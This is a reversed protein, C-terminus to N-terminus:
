KSEPLIRGWDAFHESWYSDEIDTIIVGTEPGDSAAHIFIRKNKFKGEGQYLGLYIGVHSIAGSSTTRFFMLDGPERDKEEIKEVAKYMGKSNSPIRKGAGFNAVYSVYGSCDFGTKPTKGAYKYPTGKLSIALDIFEQREDSVKRVPEALCKQTILSVFLAVFLSLLINRKM